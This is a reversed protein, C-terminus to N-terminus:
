CMFYVQWLFSSTEGFNFQSEDHSDLENKSEDSNYWSAPIIKFDVQTSTRINKNEM